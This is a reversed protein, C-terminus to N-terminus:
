SGVEETTLFFRQAGSQPDGLRTAKLCEFPLLEFNFHDSHLVKVTVQKKRM